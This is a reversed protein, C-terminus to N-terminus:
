TRSRRHTTRRQREGITAERRRGSRRVVVESRATSRPIRGSAGSAGAIERQVVCSVPLFVGLPSGARDVRRPNTAGHWGVLAHRSCPLESDAPGQIVPMPNRIASPNRHCCAALHQFAAQMGAQEESGRLVPQTRRPLSPREAAASQPAHLASRSVPDVRLREIAAAAHGPRDRRNGPWCRPSRRAAYGAPRWRVGPSKRHRSVSGSATAAGEPTSM